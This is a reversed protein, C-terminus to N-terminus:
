SRLNTEGLFDMKGVNVGAHRLIAYATTVHFYFNPIAMQNLYEEAPIWKGEAWGPKVKVADAKAFDSEKFGNLYTLVKNIRERCEAWTVETDEHKPPTQGSLYAACFKATDCVSQIQENFPFQDPAIRYSALLNVDYKQQDAHAAAKVMCQDLNKLMKKFQFIAHTNM